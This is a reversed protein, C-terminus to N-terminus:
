NQYRSCNPLFHTFAICNTFFLTGLTDRSPITDHSQLNTSFTSHFTSNSIPSSSKKTPINLNASKNNEVDSLSYTDRIDKELTKPVSIRSSVLEFKANVLNLPINTFYAMIPDGLTPSTKVFVNYLRKSKPKPLPKREIKSLLHQPTYARM